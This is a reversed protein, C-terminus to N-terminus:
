SSYNTFFQSPLKSITSNSRTAKRRAQFTGEDVIFYKKGKANLCYECQGVGLSQLSVLFLVSLRNSVSRSVATKLNTASFLSNPVMGVTNNQRAGIRNVLDALTHICPM